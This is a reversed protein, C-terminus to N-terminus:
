CEEGLRRRLRRRQAPKACKQCLGAGRRQRAPDGTVAMRMAPREKTKVRVLGPVGGRSRKYKSPGGGGEGNAQLRGKARSTESFPRGRRHRCPGRSIGTPHLSRICNLCLPMNQFGRGGLLGAAHPQSFARAFFGHRARTNDRQIKTNGTTCYHCTFARDARCPRRCRGAKSLPRGAAQNLFSSM